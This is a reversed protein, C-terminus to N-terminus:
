SSTLAVRLGRQTAGTQVQSAEVSEASTVSCIMSIEPVLKAMASPHCRPGVPVGTASGVSTSAAMRLEEGFGPGGRRESLRGLAKAEIENDDSATCNSGM